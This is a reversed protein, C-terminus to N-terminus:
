FIFTQSKSLRLFRRLSKQQSNWNIKFIIIMKVFPDNTAPWIVALLWQFACAGWSIPMMNECKYKFLMLFAPFPIWLWAFYLICVVGSYLLVKPRINTKMMMSIKTNTKLPYILIFIVSYKMLYFKSRQFDIQIEKEM